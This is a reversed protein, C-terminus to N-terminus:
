TQLVRNQLAFFHIGQRLYDWYTFRRTMVDLSDYVKTGTLPNAPNNAQNFMAQKAKRYSERLQERAKLESKIEDAANIAWQKVDALTTVPPMEGGIQLGLKDFVALHNQRVEEAVVKAHEEVPPATERSKKLFMYLM